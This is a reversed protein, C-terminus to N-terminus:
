RDNREISVDGFGANIDITLVAPEQQDPGDLGPPDTDDVRDVTELRVGVGTRTHEFIRVEGAGVRANAVVDVDDPVTVVLEGAGMQINTEVSDGPLVELGSLDLSFEGAGLQYSSELEEITVPAEVVQGFSGGPGVVLDMSPFGRLLSGVLVLPLLVVGAIILSRGRGAISGILLGVGVIALAISLIRLPGVVTVDAMDLMWLIGATLLAVGLTARALLSGERVPAPPPTFGGSPGSGSPPAPPGAPPPGEALEAATPSTPDAVSRAPPSPNAPSMQETSASMQPETTDHLDAHSWATGPPATSPSSARPRSTPLVYETPADSRRWLAVGLGLLVLPIVLGADLQGLLGGPGTVSGVFWISGLTLLVVGFWFSAGRRQDDRGAPAGAASVAPSQPILIWGLLYALAGLGQTLITVIVFGIRVLVVDVDLHNAVGAAVGGLYGADPDRRFRPRGPPPPPPPAAPQGPPPAASPDASRTDTM